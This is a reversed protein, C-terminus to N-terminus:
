STRVEYRYMAVHTLRGERARYAITRAWRTGDALEYLAVTTLDRPSSHFEGTLVNAGRARHDAFAALLEDVAEVGRNEHVKDGEAVRVWLRPSLLDRAATDNGEGVLREFNSVTQNHEHQVAHSRRAIARDLAVRAAPRPRRLASALARVQRRAEAPRSNGAGDVAPASLEYGFAKLQDGAVEEISRIEAPSLETRWKDAGLGPSAPDVNFESGAEVLIEDWLDDSLELGLQAFLETIHGRPDGLLTEYVVEVYRDGVAAAGARADRVTDRWEAAAEALTEPGWPMSVLSRAVSRGDRVINFVWADPFVDAILPLHSAHWPTRELIFRATPDERELTDALVRDLLERLGDLLADRSVFTRGPTAAGPNAHQFRDLFPKVGDSVLYTETPVAVIEPHATLIRELWNTGSRRAGVVFIVRDRLPSDARSM